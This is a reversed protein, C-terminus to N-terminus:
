PRVVWVFLGPIPRGQDERIPHEQTEAVKFGAEQAQARVYAATHAYRMTPQLVLDSGDPPALEVTFCFRGGPRLARAAAAFLEELAGIYVLVDAAVLLDFAADHGRLFEVADAQVVDDYCGTARAREVMNGSLDVGVLRGALPRLLPGCLGTGCGLDLAADVRAPGLREVLRQPARYNLVQVLHSEFQGAYGDFLSEVYERPAHAPPADGALSALFFRNLESDGGQEAATRYAAAAEGTRGLSRLISGRLTWAAPTPQVRLARDIADLAREHQDLEALAAAHHRLAEANAPEQALAEELVAAAEEARGLKLRVAGLNTLTSPRGPVLALSAAFDREAQLLDGAEYRSVGRLFFDRAQEFTDSM